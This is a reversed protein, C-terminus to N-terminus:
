GDERFRDGAPCDCIVKHYDNNAKRTLRCKYFGKGKCKVCKKAKM